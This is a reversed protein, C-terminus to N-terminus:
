ACWPANSVEGYNHDSFHDSACVGCLPGGSGDACLSASAAGGCAALAAPSAFCARDADSVVGPCRRAYPCAPADGIHRAELAGSDANRTVSTDLWRGDTPYPLSANGDCIAGEPCEDCPAGPAGDARYAGEACACQLSM